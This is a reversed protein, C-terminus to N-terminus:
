DDNGEPWSVNLRRSQRDISVEGFVVDKLISSDFPRVPNPHLVGIMRPAESAYSCLLLGSLTSRAFGVEEDPDPRLFAASYFETTNYDDGVQEGTRIDVNWSLNTEGTLIQSVVPRKFSLMAAYVHFTGVVLLCPADVNSCQRAKGKCESFIADNLPRCATMGHSEYPINTKNTATEISICTVEVFFRQQKASCCRRYECRFDPSQSRGTLDENPEVRIKRSQLVSRVRAEAMAAEYDADRLKEWNRLYQDGFPALWERHEAELGNLYECPEM